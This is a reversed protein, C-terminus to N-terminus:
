AIKDTIPGPNLEVKSVVRAEGSQLQEVHQVLLWVKVVNETAFLKHWMLMSIRTSVSSDLCLWPICSFILGLGLCLSQDRTGHDSHVFVKTSNTLMFNPKM